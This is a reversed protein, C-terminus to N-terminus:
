ANKWRLNLEGGEDFWFRGDLFGIGFLALSQDRCTRDRGYLGTAANRESNMRVMQRAEIKSQGSARLYPLLAASFGVPGDSGTPIGYRNVQQPPDNHIALYGSMGDLAHLIQRQTSGTGIMAAWLYVRMADYSGGSDQLSDAAGPDQTAPYFGDGPVYEVRDMAFGHRASQQLVRPINWAIAQWPGTPDVHAFREFIFLPLDGPNVISVRDHQFGQPGPLLMPGLGPLDAVESRAILALQGRGMATYAANSWLRGAEILTYALWVDADSEPKADLPNSAADEADDKEWACLHSRLDGGALNTQTWALVRDFAPRDNAVLAFFLAQAQEESASDRNDHPDSVQGQADIFHAKYSEWLPWGNQKCGGAFLASVAAAVALYKRPRSTFARM